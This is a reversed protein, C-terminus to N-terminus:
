PRLLRKQRAKVILWKLPDQWRKAALIMASAIMLSSKREWRHLLSIRDRVQPIFNTLLSRAEAGKAPERSTMMAQKLNSPHPPNTLKVETRTTMMEKLESTTMMKKWAVLSPPERWCRSRPMHRWALKMSLWAIIAQSNSVRTASRLPTNAELSPMCILNSNAWLRAVWWM